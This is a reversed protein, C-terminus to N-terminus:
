DDLQDFISGNSKPVSKKMINHVEFIVNRLPVTFNVDKSMLTTLARALVPNTVDKGNKDIVQLDRGSVVTDVVDKSTIYSRTEANYLKRNKYRKILLPKM